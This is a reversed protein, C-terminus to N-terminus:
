DIVDGKLEFKIFVFPSPELLEIFLEFISTTFLEPLTVGVESVLEMFLPGRRAVEGGGGDVVGDALCSM